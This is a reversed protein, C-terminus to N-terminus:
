GIVRRKSTILAVLPTGLINVKVAMIIADCAVCLQAASGQIHQADNIIYRAFTGNPYYQKIRPSSMTYFYGKIDQWLSTYSENNFNSIFSECAETARNIRCLGGTVNDIFYIHSSDVSLVRASDVGQLGQRDTVYTRLAIPHGSANQDFEKVLFHPYLTTSGVFISGGHCFLGQIGYRFEDVDYILSIKRLFTGTTGDYAKIHTYYPSENYTYAAFVVGNLGIGTGGATGGPAHYVSWEINGLFDYKRLYDHGGSTIVGYLSLGDTTINRLNGINLSRVWSGEYCEYVPPNPNPPVYNKFWYGCGPDHIHTIKKRTFNTSWVPNIAGAFRSGENYPEKQPQPVFTWPGRGAYSLWGERIRHQGAFSPSGGFLAGGSASATVKQLKTVIFGFAGGIVMGGLAAQTQSNNESYAKTPPTFDNTWRAIGKSVRYEDMWGSFYWSGEGQQGIFLSAALDPVTVGSFNIDAGQKVGNLFLYGVNGNRVIAIHYWIGTSFAYERSQNILSTGASRIIFYIRYTGSISWVLIQIRNDSDLYQSYICSGPTPLANLRFWCDITFYGTGFNWDDSDPVTLYDGNGGFLGSAGGFKSQATDIQANGHATVVHGSPSSDTFMTSGDTGDMHLMLKTYEDIGPM